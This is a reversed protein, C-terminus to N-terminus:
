YPYITQIIEIPCLPRSNLIIQMTLTLLKEWKLNEDGAVRKLHYITSNIAAEWLDGFHPSRAPIFNWQIQEYALSTAFGDNSSNVINYLEKLKHKAGIFHCHCGNITVAM